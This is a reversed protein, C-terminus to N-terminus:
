ELLVIKKISLGSRTRLGWLYVGSALGDAKLNVEHSGPELAREWIAQGRLNYLSLIGSEGFAVDARVKATQGKLIPNPWACRLFSGGPYAPATDDNTEVGGPSLKFVFMDSYGSSTLEYPGFEATNGFTGCVYSNGASDTAIASGVDGATGGAGVAWIWNGDPDTKAAYIDDSGHTPLSIDGFVGTNLFSGTAHCNGSNDAAIGNGYDDNPGGCSAAWNWNGAPDIRAVFAERAGSGTATHAGFSASGIFWGTLIANGAPDTTIDFGYDSSTGGAAEAWLFNGSTNLKAVFVDIGGISSVDCSGFISNGYIFGTIYSDGDSHASIGYAYDNDAGGGGAAWLWNGAPDLKAAFADAEGNSTLDSSGFSAQNDFAGCIYVNGSADRSVGLGKDYFDGGARVAWLWNGGAGLKAVFVDQSGASTLQIDGFQITNSFYGTLFCNGNDDCCIGTASDDMGGSLAPVAWLWNGESDLKAVFLDLGGSSTLSTSGIVVTGTYAGSVFTNESADVCISTPYLSGGDGGASSVWLWDPGTQASLTICLPLLLAALLCLKTM